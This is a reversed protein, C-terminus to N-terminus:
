GGVPEQDAQRRRPHPPHARHAGSATRDPYSCRTPTCTPQSYTSTLKLGDRALRDINPTAAGIAAGGGYAGPDGWGMDDIVLWVINPRRGLHRYLADLKQQAAAQQDTHVLAPEASESTRVAKSLVSQSLALTPIAAIVATQFVFARLKAINM